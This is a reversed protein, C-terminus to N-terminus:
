ELRSELSYYAAEDQRLVNVLYPMATALLGPLTYPPNVIFLGSGYIGLGDAPPSKVTLAAHLWGRPLVATPGAIAAGV